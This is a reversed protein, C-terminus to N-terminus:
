SPTLALILLLVPILTTITFFVGVLLFIIICATCNLADICAWIAQNTYMSNLIGIEDKQNFLCFPFRLNLTFLDLLKAQM